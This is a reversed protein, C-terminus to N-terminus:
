RIMDMSILIGSPINVRAERGVIKNLLAPSLGTGPRRTTLSELTIKEGARIPCSTVLSKRAVNATEIEAHVPEKVGHGMAQEVVRVSKVLNAFESPELSCAHDPGHMTRDLTLHKELVCAGVAVAAVGVDIGLTHDSYGIPIEFKSALTQIAKLNVDRPQAPYLSVCHLLVLEICGSDTIAQVAYEVETLMSMGTSLIVPKGKKAIHKLLPLNTVEGSSIKFVSIELDHLLDASEEDFPTSIFIIGKDECYCKLEKYFSSPLELSKLMEFQSQSGGINKKQYPALPATSLALKEAKFTQFKVADVGSDVAADVLRKALSPDGNHNVGAEAILFCPHDLGIFRDGVQISKVM